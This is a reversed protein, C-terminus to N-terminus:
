ETEVRQVYGSVVVGRVLHKCRVDIVAVMALFDDPTHFSSRWGVGGGDIEVGGVRDLERNWEGVRLNM